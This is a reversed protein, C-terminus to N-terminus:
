TILMRPWEPISARTVEIRDSKKLAARFIRMARQVARDIEKKTPEPAPYKKAWFDVTRCTAAFDLLDEAWEPYLRCYKDMLAASPPLFGEDPNDTIECEEVMAFCVDDWDAVLVEKKAVLLLKNIMNKEVM